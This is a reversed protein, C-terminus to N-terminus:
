PSAVSWTGGRVLTCRERGAYRVGDGSRVALQSIVKLVDATATQQQLSERLERSRRCSMRVLAYERHRHRGPCRLEHAARDAKRHVTTGRPSLNRIAGVLENDKLMPVAILSTRFGGLSVASLFVPECEAIHGTGAQYRRYSGDAQKLVGRLPERVPGKHTWTASFEAFAPPVGFMAAAEGCWVRIFMGFDADCIRVAKELMAEFVPELNGPSRSIVKLVDATATQQQLSERLENLLRTNEIAIVAQAAFNKVLEIQKDTFPRVEQRFMSIAGVLEGEKLMPVILYTRAGAVEVLTIIRSHKGIYSQDTRLDPIHVVQKTNAVRNLPVEANDRLDIM